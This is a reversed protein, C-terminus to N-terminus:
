KRLITNNMYIIALFLMERFLPRAQGANRTNRSRSGAIGHTGRCLVPYFWAKVLLQVGYTSSRVIAGCILLAATTVTVLSHNPADNSTVETLWPLAANGGTPVVGTYPHM